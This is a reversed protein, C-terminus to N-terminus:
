KLWALFDRNISQNFNIIVADLFYLGQANDNINTRL